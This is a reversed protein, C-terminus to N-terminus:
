KEVTKTTDGFPMEHLSSDIKGFSGTNKKQLSYHQQLRQHKDLQLDIGHM